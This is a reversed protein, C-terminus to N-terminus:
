SAAKRTAITRRYVADTGAVQAQLTFSITQRTHGGNGLSVRREDDAALMRLSRAAESVDGPAYLCAQDLGGLTERHGGADTAVVPLAFSMAELVSLGFHEFPSTALFMGSTAMLAGIDTRFGLFRVSAACSLTEATARLSPGDPGDGAIWLEWGDDAIRSEAFARLGVDGHKEPQLRQAMLVVRRRTRPNPRAHSGVGPRVVTATVGVAAAVTSSVAIEADIRSELMRYATTPGITGRPAAFHRTSVLAPRANGLALGAVAGVDAATMHSNIVDVRAMGRRVVRAVQLASSAPHYRAGAEALAAGMHEAAGGAVFVSHGSAAQARALRRVFQEVGAFRDSAVVHLIRLPHDTM